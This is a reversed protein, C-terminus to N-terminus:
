ADPQHSRELESTFAAAEFEALARECSAVADIAEQQGPAGFYDRERVAALWRQFRKFDADSEEVETYTMRGRQRETEIERLFDLTREVIEGYEDSREASFAAMLEQEEREDSLAIQLMRGHGGERQVRAILRTVARRTSPRDPLLYVSQHLAHAGLGRLKRWAHVRLTSSAGSTSVTIILWRETVNYTYRV